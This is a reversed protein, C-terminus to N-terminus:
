KIISLQEALSGKATQVKVTYMGAALAATNVTLKHVGKEFQQNAVNNVVRGMADTVQVTANTAENLSLSIYVNDTAPNPYVIFKDIGASVNTIGLPISVNNSNLVMGDSNRILMVVARMKTRNYPQAITTNFTYDYNTGATMTAPLSGAAGGTSPVIARAVFDYFMKDAPVKSPQTHWAFGAGNLPGYNGSSYYNSQDWTSGTGHVDDETLALALRYDGSLDIAPKVTVKIAYDFNSAAVDTLTIDAFGFDDKHENYNDILDSPDIIDRRDVVVEPYGGILGGMFADYAAVVMPDGNHVAILSYKNPYTNHLSDMYVAGRPCFGCWTGTGEEVLIKKNPMFSVTTLATNGTDNTNDADGPLEVWVKVPYDGLTGPLTYQNSCTFAQSTFSTINVGTVTNTVPPNAGQQYKVIFSTIPTSGNNLVTGGITVATSIAGYAKPSALKPTVDTLVADNAAPVFVKINDLAIGPLQATGNDKYKFSLMLNPTNNYAALSIYKSQWESAKGKFTDIVVWSAGGNTSMQIYAEEKQGTSSYQAQVYYYDLNLYAGTKGALSFVPSLLMTSDNNENNNWDDIVAYITHAPCVWSGNATISGTYTKFGTTAKTQQLWGGPLAPPAVSEFNQLMVTQAISSVSLLLGAAFLTSIKRM